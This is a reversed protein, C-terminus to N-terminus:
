KKRKAMRNPRSYQAGQKAQNVSKLKRSKTNNRKVAASKRIPM